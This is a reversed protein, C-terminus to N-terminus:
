LLRLCCMPDDTGHNISGIEILRDFHAFCLMLIHLLHVPTCVLQCTFGETWEMIVSLFCFSICLMRLLRVLVVNSDCSSMTDGFFELDRNWVDRLEDVSVFTRSTSTIFVLLLIAGWLKMM